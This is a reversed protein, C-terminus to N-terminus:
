GRTAPGPTQVWRRYARAQRATRLQDLLLAWAPSVTPSPPRGRSLRRLQYKVTAMTAIAALPKNQWTVPKLAAEREIGALWDAPLRPDVALATAIGVMAVGSDLVQEAIARRRIGGTVMVPARALPVLARAFELFYAERALTRGDRTQGQMAPAEYSGGSLEILDVGLGNLAEVVGHADEASFGGRQFDASNLKVSVAFGPSVAARIGRVVELLLRARGALSGGWGDERRNTLPSLFQSLLYGHAAHVQVGNFGAQEALQATRIFRQRLAEIEAESLARPLAFRKSFRGLELAVASPALTPQGLAVPMQRGPHNIQMWVAAGGSRATASWRRFRELQRAEELVVGAPGTMGRRDVMVNGTIILGAGGEAWARYLRILAESPAHDADALNEEMAAKAIRNPLTSGNPLTLPRNLLM